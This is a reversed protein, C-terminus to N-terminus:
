ALLLDFGSQALHGDLHGALEGALALDLEDRLERREVGEEHYRLQEPDRALLLVAQAFLEAFAAGGARSGAGVLAVVAGHSVADAVFAGGAGAGGVGEGGVVALEELVHAVAAGVGLAVDERLNGGGAEAIAGQGGEFLEDLDGADDVAGPVARGGVQERVGHLEEGLLGVELVAQALFGESIGAKM